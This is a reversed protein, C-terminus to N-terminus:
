WPRCSLSRDDTSRIHFEVRLSLSSANQIRIFCVHCLRFWALLTSIPESQSIDSCKDQTSDNGLCIRCLVNRMKIDECRDPSMSDRDYYCNTSCLIDTIVTHV